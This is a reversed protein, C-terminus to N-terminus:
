GTAQRVLNAYLGNHHMLAEHTGAEALQGREMVLIRDATAPHRAKGVIRQAAPGLHAVGRDLAPRQQLLSIRRVSQQRAQSIGVTMGGTKGIVADVPEGGGNIGVAARLPQSVVGVAIDQRALGAGLTMGAWRGGLQAAERGAGITDSNALDSRINVGTSILDYTLGVPGLVRGANRVVTGIARMSKSAVNVERIVRGYEQAQGENKAGTLVNNAKVEDFYRTRGESLSITEYSLDARIGEVLNQPRDSVNLDIGIKRVFLGYQSRVRNAADVMANNGLRATWSKPHFYEGSTIEPATGFETIPLGANRIETELSTSLKYTGSIGNYIRYNGAARPYAILIAVGNVYAIGGFAAIENTLDSMTEM